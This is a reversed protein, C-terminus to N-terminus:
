ATVFRSSPRTGGLAAPIASIPRAQEAREQQLRLERTFTTDFQNFVTQDDPDLEEAEGESDQSEQSYQSDQSEERVCIMHQPFQVHILM